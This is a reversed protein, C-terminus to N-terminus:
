ISIFSSITTSSFATTSAVYVFFRFILICNHLLRGIVLVLNLMDLHLPLNIFWWWQLKKSFEVAQDFWVHATDMMDDTDFVVLTVPM